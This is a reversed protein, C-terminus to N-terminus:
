VSGWVHVTPEAGFSPLRRSARVRRDIAARRGRADNFFFLSSSSDRGKGARRRSPRLATRARDCVCVCARVCACVCVLLFPPDSSLCSRESRGAEVTGRGENEVPERLCLCTPLLRYTQRDSAIAVVRELSRIARTRRDVVSVGRWRPFTRVCVVRSARDVVVQSTYRDVVSGVVVRPFCRRRRRRAGCVCARREISRSPRSTASRASSSRSAAWSTSRRARSRRAGGCRARPSPPPRRGGIRTARARPRVRRASRGVRGGVEGLEQGALARADRRGCYHRLLRPSPPLM